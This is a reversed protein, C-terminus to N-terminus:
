AEKAFRQSLAHKILFIYKKLSLNYLFEAAIRFPHRLITYVLSLPWLLMWTLVMWKIKKVFDWLSASKNHLACLEADVSAPLTGQWV